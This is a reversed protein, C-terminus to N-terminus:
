YRGTIHAWMLKAMKKFDSTDSQNALFPNGGNATLIQHYIDILTAQMLLGRESKKLGKGNELALEKKEVVFSLMDTLIPKLLLFADDANQSHMGSAMDNTLPAANTKWSHPIARVLGLMAWAAGLDESIKSASSSLDTFQLSAAAQSLKGGVGYTYTKLSNFNSGREDQFDEKRANILDKLLSFISADKRLLALEQIVPQERVEGREIEDIVDQWWQLRIEGLMPESVTDKIKAIEQNFAYLAWLARQADAPAFLSLLYRDPDDRKVLDRCYDANQVIDKM